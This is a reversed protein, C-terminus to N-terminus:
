AAERRYVPLFDSEIVRGFTKREHERKRECLENYRPTDFIRFYNFVPMTQQAFARKYALLGDGESTTAGGGLHLWKCGHGRAHRAAQYYVLEDIGADTRTRKSGLLHAYATVGCRVVLLATEAFEQPFHAVILDYNLEEFHAAIQDLTFRLRAPANLREMSASYLRHFAAISDPTAEVHDIMVGAMTAKGVGRRHNRAMDAWMAEDSRLEMCVVERYHHLQLGSERLLDEQMPRLLPHLVCFECVIKQERLWKEWEHMLWLYLRPTSRWLKNSIPGGYGYANSIDSVMEGDIMTSNVVFPQAVFVDEYTYIALLVNQGLKGQVRAYASSYHLDRAEVPVQAMYDDWARADRVPDLVFFNM